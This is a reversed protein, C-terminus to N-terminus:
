RGEKIQENAIVIQDLEGADYFIMWTGSTVGRMSEQVRAQVNDHEDRPVHRLFIGRVRQPYARAMAAYVDPDREGTDGVLVFTRQPYNEFLRTLANRKFEQPDELMTRLAQVASKPRILKLTYTAPPFGATRRLLDLEEFLQYPSSSLLHLRCNDWQTYWKQYVQAMGPVPQFDKMFTNRLMAKKHVVNTIKITDDIDSVITVGHPPVLHVKGVYQIERSDSTAHFKIYGDNYTDEEEEDTTVHRLQNDSVTLNTRFHGNSRSPTMRYEQGALTISPTKSGENDVLFARIRHKLIVDETSNSPVKLVRRFLSLFAKRKRSDLEPEFIWGHIPVHWHTENVRVANTPFFIVREDDAIHNGRNAFRTTMKQLSFLLPWTQLFKM